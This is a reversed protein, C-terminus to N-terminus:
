IISEQCRSGWALEVDVVVEAVSKSAAHGTSDALVFLHDPTKVLYGREEILCLATDELEHSGVRHGLEGAFWLVGRDELLAVQLTHDVLKGGVVEVLRLRELLIKRGIM